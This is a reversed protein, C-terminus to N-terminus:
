ADTVVHQTFSGVGEASLEVVDGPRLFTQSVVGVGAPSGTLIVDGPELTFYNSIYSVSAPIDFLMDATSTHQRVEGNIKTELMLDLPGNSVDFEDMTVLAPGLPKFGDLGKAHGLEATPSTMATRQIDRASIDNSLTLGAVHNWVDAEAIHKGGQGIVLALEIEYDVQDPAMAPLVIDAGPTTIATSPVLFFVPETPPEQNLAKLVHGIEDIHSQYNIAMCVVKGPRRVPAQLSLTALPVTKTVAASALQTLNPDRQLVSGLDTDDVDLLDLLGDTASRAIGQNTVYYRM